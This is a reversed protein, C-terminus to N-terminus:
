RFDVATSNAGCLLVGIKQGPTAIWVRSHLAAFATAGGPEVVIRLVRWLAQQAAHIAADRVLVTERVFSKAIPFM